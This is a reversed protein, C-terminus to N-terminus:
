KGYSYYVFVLRGNPIFRQNAITPDAGVQRGYKDEGYEPREPNVTAWKRSCETCLIYYDGSSFQLEKHQCSM